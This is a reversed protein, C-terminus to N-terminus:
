WLQQLTQAIHAAATHQEPQPLQSLHRLGIPGYAIQGKLTPYMGVWTQKVSWSDIDGLLRDLADGCEIAKGRRDVERFVVPCDNPAKDLEAYRSLLERVLSDATERTSLLVQRTPLVYCHWPDEMWARCVSPWFVDRFAVAPFKLIADALAAVGSTNLYSLLSFRDRSPSRDNPQFLMMVKSQLLDELAAIAEASPLCYAVRETTYSRRETASWLQNRAMGQRLVTDLYAVLTGRDRARALVALEDISFASNGELLSDTTAVRERHMELLVRRTWAIYKRLEQEMLRPGIPSPDLVHQTIRIVPGPDRGFGSHCAQRSSTIGRPTLDLTVGDSPGCNHAKHCSKGTAVQSGLIHERGRTCTCAITAGWTIMSTRCTSRPLDHKGSASVLVVAPRVASMLEEYTEETKGDLYVRGGHHPAKLIDAQLGQPHRALIYCWNEQDGSLIIRHTREGTTVEVYVVLSTNNLFSDGFFEPDARKDAIAQDRAATQRDKVSDPVDRGRVLDAPSLGNTSLAADLGPFLENIDTAEEEDPPRALWGLQTRDASLLEAADDATLLRRILRAPPSLVELKCSLGDPASSYGELPYVIDAGAGSLEAELARGRGIADRARSGFLWAYREFAPLAPGWYSRVPVTSTLSILGGVHDMDLHTLILLDVASVGAKQLQKILLPPSEGGDILCTWTGTRSPCRLLIADGHGVGLASLECGSM